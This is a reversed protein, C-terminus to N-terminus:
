ESPAITFQMSPDWENLASALVDAMADHSLSFGEAGSLALSYGAYVVLIREM